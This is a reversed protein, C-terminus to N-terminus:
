FKSHFLNQFCLKKKPFHGVNLFTKSCANLFFVLLYDHVLYMLIFNCYMMAGLLDVVNFSGKLPEYIFDEQSLIAEQM